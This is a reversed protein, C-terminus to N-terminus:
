LILKAICVNRSAKRPVKRADPYRSNRVANVVKRPFDTKSFDTKAFINHIHVFEISNLINILEFVKNVFGLINYYM